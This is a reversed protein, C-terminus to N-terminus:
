LGAKTNKTGMRHVKIKSFVYMKMDFNEGEDPAENIGWPEAEYITKGRYTIETIEQPYFRSGEEFM